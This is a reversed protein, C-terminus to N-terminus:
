LVSLADSVSASGQATHWSELSDADQEASSQREAQRQVVQNHLPLNENWTATVNQNQRNELTITNETGTEIEILIPEREEEKETSSCVRRTTPRRVFIKPVLPASVTRGHHNAPDSLTGIAISFDASPTRSPTEDSALPSPKCRFALPQSPKSFEVIPTETKQSEEDSLHGSLSPTRRIDKRADGLM